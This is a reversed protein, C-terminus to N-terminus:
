RFLNVLPYYDFKLTFTYSTNHGAYWAGTATDLFLLGGWQNPRSPELYLPTRVYETPRLPLYDGSSNLVYAAPRPETIDDFVAFTGGTASVNWELDIVAEDAAILYLADADITSPTDNATAIIKVRFRYSNIMGDLRPIDLYGLDVMSDVTAGIGSVTANLAITDGSSGGQTLAWQLTGVNTAGATHSIVDTRLLARYRGAWDGVNKTITYDLIFTTPTGSGTQLRMVSGGIAAAVGTTTATAAAPGEVTRAVTYGPYTTGAGSAANTNLLFPMNSSNGKAKRAIIARRYPSSADPQLTLKVPLPVEGTTTAAIMAIPDTASIGGGNKIVSSTVSTLAQQRGYPKLTLHLRAAVYLPSAANALLIDQAFDAMDLTGGLVDYIVTNTMAGLQVSLYARDGMGPSAPDWYAHAQELVDTIQRYNIILDDMSTGRVYLTLDCERNGVSRGSPPHFNRRWPMLFQETVMPMGLRNLQSPDLGYTASDSLTLLYSANELQVNTAM